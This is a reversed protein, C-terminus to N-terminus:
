STDASRERQAVNALTLHAWCFIFVVSKRSSLHPIFYFLVLIFSYSLKFPVRSGRSALPFLDTGSSYLTIFLVGYWFSSKWPSDELGRWRVETTGTKRVKRAKCMKKSQFMTPLRFLSFTTLLSFLKPYTQLTPVFCNNPKQQFWRKLDINGVWRGCKEWMETSNVDSSPASQQLQNVLWGSKTSTQNQNINLCLFTIIDYLDYTM